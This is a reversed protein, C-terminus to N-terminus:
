SSTVFRKRKMGNKREAKRRTAGSPLPFWDDPLPLAGLLEQFDFWLGAEDTFPLRDQALEKSSGDDFLLISIKADTNHRFGELHVIRKIGAELIHVLGHKSLTLINYCITIGATSYWGNRFEKHLDNETPLDDLDNYMCKWVEADLGGLIDNSKPSPKMSSEIMPDLCWPFSSLPAEQGLRRCLESEHITILRIHSGDPNRNYHISFSHVVATSAPRRPVPYAVDTTPTDVSSFTVSSEM